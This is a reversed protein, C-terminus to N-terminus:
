AGIGSLRKLEVVVPHPSFAKLFRATPMFTVTRGFQTDDRFHITVPHINIWRNETVDAILSFPIPVERLFNSVYLNNSDVRVQKLRTCMWLIFATGVLWIVLFTWKMQDPPPEGHKGHMVGLWLLLTTLGFVSTWGAPFLVKYFITLRSSLTKLM